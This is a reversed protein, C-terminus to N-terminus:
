SHLLKRNYYIMDDSDIIAIKCYLLVGQRSFSEKLFYRWIIQIIVNYFSKHWSTSDIFIHSEILFVKYWSISEYLTHSEMISVIAAPLQSELFMQLFILFGFKWEDM